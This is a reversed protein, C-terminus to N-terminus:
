YLTDAFGNRNLIRGSDWMATDSEYKGGIVSPVTSVNESLCFDM